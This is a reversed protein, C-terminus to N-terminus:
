IRHFRSCLPLLRDAAPKLDLATGILVSADALSRRLNTLRDFLDPRHQPDDPM